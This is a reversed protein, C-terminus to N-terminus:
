TNYTICPTVPNPIVIKETNCCNSIHINYTQSPTVPIPIFDKKEANSCNSM